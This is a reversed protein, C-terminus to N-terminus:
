LYCHNKTTIAKSLSDPQLKYLQYLKRTCLLIEKYLSTPTDSRIQSGETVNLPGTLDNMLQNSNGAKM